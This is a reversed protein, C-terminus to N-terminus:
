VPPLSRLLTQNMADNANMTPVPMHVYQPGFQGQYSPRGAGQSELNVLRGRGAPIM